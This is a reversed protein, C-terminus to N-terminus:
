TAERQPAVVGRTEKAEHVSRNVGVCSGWYVAGVLVGFVGILTGGFGALLALAGSSLLTGVPILVGLSFARVRVRLAKSLKNIILQNVPNRLGFRLETELARSAVAQALGVHLANAGLSISVLVGYVLNSSKLGIARILRSMVFLQLFLSITLAITTYRGMFAALEVDSGFHTEFFTNYQYNLVWRAIMFVLSSISTWRVLPSRWAFVVFGRLSTLARRELEEISADRVLGEDSREDAESEVPRQFRATMSVVLMSAAVLVLCALLASSLDFRTALTELLAGGAIGGVRGGSYVVMLVRNMELRTFYDQLFTGFHMVLLTYAVERAAFLVGYARGAGGAIGEISLYAGLFTAGTMALILQFTKASGLREARAVYLGIMALNAAATLAYYRPLADAGVRKVFLALSLGDAMSLLCFLLFYLGFFPWLRKLEDGELHLLRSLM